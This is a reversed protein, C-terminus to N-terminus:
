SAPKNKSLNEGKIEVDIGLRGDDLFMGVFPKGTIFAPNMQRRQLFFSFVNMNVRMGSFTKEIDLVKGTVKKVQVPAPPAPSPQSAAPNNAATKKVPVFPKGASNIQFHGRDVYTYGDKYHFTGDGSAWQFGLENALQPINTAIWQQETSNKSAVAKSIKHTITIDIARGFEHLSTGPKANRGNDKKVKKQQEFTRFGSEIKVWYGRKNIANILQIFRRKYQPPYANLKVMNENLGAETVKDDPYSTGSASAPAPEEEKVPVPQAAQPEEVTSVVDKYVYDREEPLQIINFYSAFNAGSKKSQDEQNLTIGYIFQEVMGRSVQVTTFAEVSTDSVSYSHQVAEVYFIESTPLYRIFNGVKIRRDRHIVISGKRTFPLYATSEIMFKMDDIIQTEIKNAMSTNRNDVSTGPLYYHNLQMTKSGFERAYEPFYVAPFVATAFGRQDYLNARPILQYWSVADADSFELSERIVSDAEINILLPKPPTKDANDTTTTAKGSKRIAAEEARETRVNGKVISRISIKDFPAKRLMIYFMDGYTDMQYEVFPAQCSKRFLNMLSGSATSISSDVLKRGAVGEDVVLKVIQWIGPADAEKYEPKYKLTGFADIYNDIDEFISFISYHDFIAEKSVHHLNEYFYQMFETDGIDENVSKFNLYQLKKWGVTKNGAVKRVKKERIATLFRKTEGFIERVKVEELLKDRYSLSLRNRLNQIKAEARKRYTDTFYTRRNNSTLAEQDFNYRKNKRDGYYAFMEDAVIKVNSLQQIVFKFINELSNNCYLGLYTLANSAAVRNMIPNKNGASGSFAMKGDTFEIPFFYCGDELFLKSLDRGYIEIGVDTNEPSVQMVTRDVLGIMDYIKGPLDEFGVHDAVSDQIRHDTETGLTEFRIFIMDNAGIISNFLFGNRRAFPTEDKGTGNLSYLNSSAYFQKGNVAPEQEYFHIDDETLTWRDNLMSCVVPALSLQFNGGSSQTVTTTIKTVFPTLNFMQGRHARDKPHSLAKSWLWVTLGPYRNSTIGNLEQGKLLTMKDVPQYRADAELEALRYAKFATIDNSVVEIGETLLASREMKEAEIALKTGLMLPYDAEANDKYERSKRDEPYMSFIADRNSVKDKNKVALFASLNKSYQFAPSNPDKVYEGVTKLTPNTHTVTYIQNEM